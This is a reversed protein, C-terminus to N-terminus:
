LLLYLAILDPFPPSSSQARCNFKKFLIENHSLVLAVTVPSHLRPRQHGLALCDAGVVTVFQTQGDVNVAPCVGNKQQRLRRQLNIVVDLHPILQPNHGTWGARLTCDIVSVSAKDVLLPDLHRRLIGFPHQYIGIGALNQPVRRLIQVEREADLLNRLLIEGDRLHAVRLLRRHLPHGIGAGIVVAVQVISLIGVDDQVVQRKGRRHLAPQFLQDDVIM